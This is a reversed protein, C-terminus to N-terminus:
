SWRPRAAFQNVWHTKAPTTSGSLHMARAIEYLTLGARSLLSALEIMRLRALFQEVLHAEQESLRDARLLRRLTRGDPRPHYGALHDASLTGLYAHPDPCPQRHHANEHDFWSLPMPPMRVMDEARRGGEFHTPPKGRGGILSGSEGLAAAELDVGRAQADAVRQREYAAIREEITPVHDGPVPPHHYAHRVAHFDIM